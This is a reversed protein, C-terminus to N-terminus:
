KDIIEAFGKEQLAVAGEDPILPTENIQNDGGLNGWPAKNKKGEGPGESKFHYGRVRPGQGSKEPLESEYAREFAETDLEFTGNKISERIASFYESLIHHNHIQLLVWGLMEKASLLHQIYARHHSTCTYCGCAPSLPLLSSAHTPTWMDIGLAAPTSSAEVTISEPLPQPFRFTLAIGADTAFGIFPVTFIDMGLSIQRLIHHPSKPEDLSLRPLSSLSTTAPIDPLLSSDYFALGAIEQAQNDALYNFYESQSLADIPLIPAFVAQGNDNENLLETVWAQTRDGMKAIRKTGPSTGYPVDALAIAIDPRVRQIATVYYKNSLVQFGTSTFISIATNTNGSPATVAPTRRPALLTILPSPLATFTHLPSQGPCNLIPPTSNTAKEIVPVILL